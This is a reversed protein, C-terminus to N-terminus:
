VHSVIRNLYILIKQLSPMWPENVRQLQCIVLMKPRIHKIQNQPSPLSFMQLWMHLDIYIYIYLLM